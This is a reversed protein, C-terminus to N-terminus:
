GVIRKIVCLDAMKMLDESIMTMKGKEIRLNKGTMIYSPFVRIDEFYYENARIKYTSGSPICNRKTRQKVYMNFAKKAVDGMLMIVKLNQLHSLELELLPLDKSIMERSVAYEDKQVKIATTIYIGLSALDGISKVEIGAMGFLLCITELNESSPNGGYLYDDPDKPPCENIMLVEVKMPDIDVDPLFYKSRDYGLEEVKGRLSSGINM